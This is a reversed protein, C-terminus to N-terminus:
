SLMSLTMWTLYSRLGDTICKLARIKNQSKRIVTFQYLKLMLSIMLFFFSILIFFFFLQINKKFLGVKFIPM